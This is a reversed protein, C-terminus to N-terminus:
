VWKRVDREIHNVSLGSLNNISPDGWGLFRSFDCHIGSTYICIPINEININLAKAKIYFNTMLAESSFFVLKTKTEQAAM